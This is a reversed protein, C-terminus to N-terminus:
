FSHLSSNVQSIKGFRKIYPTQKIRIGRRTYKNMARINSFFDTVFSIEERTSFFIVYNQRKLKFFWIFQPEFLIKCWHSHGFNLTFKNSKKFYRVRYAKWRWIIRLFFTLFSYTFYYNISNIAKSKSFKHSGYNLVIFIINNIKKIIISDRSCHTLKITQLL